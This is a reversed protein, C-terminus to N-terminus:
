QLLNLNTINKTYSSEILMIFIEFNNEMISHHISTNGYIDQINPDANNNLLLITIDNNPLNTSYHLPTFNHEYEQLNIEVWLMSERKM